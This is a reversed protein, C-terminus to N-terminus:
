SVVSRSVLSIEQFLGAMICVLFLNGLGIMLLLSFFGDWPGV